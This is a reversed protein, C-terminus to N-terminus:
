VDSDDELLELTRKIEFPTLLSNLREENLIIKVKLISDMLDRRLRMVVEMDDRRYHINKLTQRTNELLDRFCRKRNPIVVPDYDLLVRLGIATGSEITSSLISSLTDWSVDEDILPAEMRDYSLLFRILDRTVGQTM